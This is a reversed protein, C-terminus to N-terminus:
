LRSHRLFATANTGIGRGAPRIGSGSGSSISSSSSSSSRPPFSAPAPPVPYALPGGQAYRAFQETAHVAGSVGMTRLISSSEQVSTSVQSGESEGGEESHSNHSYQLRGRSSPVRQRGSTRGGTGNTGDVQKSTINKPRGPGRKGGKGSPRGTKKGVSGRHSAPGKGGKAGKGSSGKPRGSGGDSSKGGGSSGGGGSGAVKTKKHAKPTEGRRVMRRDELRARAYPLYGDAPATQLERPMNELVGAIVAEGM